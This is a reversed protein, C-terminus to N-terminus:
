KSRQTISRAHEAASVFTDYWAYELASKQQSLWSWVFLPICVAVLAPWVIVPHQYWKQM